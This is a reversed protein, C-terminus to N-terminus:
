GDKSLSSSTGHGNGDEGKLGLVKKMRGVGRKALAGLKEGEEMPGHGGKGNKARRKGVLPDLVGPKPPWEDDDKWGGVLARTVDALNIPM